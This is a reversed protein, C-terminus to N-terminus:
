RQARLLRAIRFDKKLIDVEGEILIFILGSKAGEALLVVGPEVSVEPLSECYDLLERM